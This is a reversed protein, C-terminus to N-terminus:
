YLILGIYCDIDFISGLLELYGTTNSVIKLKKKRIFNVFLQFVISLMLLIGFVTILSGFLASSIPQQLFTIFSPNQQEQISPWISTDFANLASEPLPEIYYIPNIRSPTSKRHPRQIKQLEPVTPPDHKIESLLPILSQSSEADNNQIGDDSGTEPENHAESLLLENPSVDIKQDTDSTTTVTAEITTSQPAQNESNLMTIQLALARIMENFISIDNAGLIRACASTLLMSRLPSLRHRNKLLNECSIPSLPSNLQSAECQAYTRSWPFISSTHHPNSSYPYPERVLHRHPQTIAQSQSKDSLPHNHVPYNRTEDNTLYHHRHHPNPQIPAAQIINKNMLYHHHPQVSDTPFPVRPESVFAYTLSSAVSVLLVYLSLLAVCFSSYSM